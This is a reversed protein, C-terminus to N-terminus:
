LDPRFYTTKIKSLKLKLGSIKAHNGNSFLLPPPIEELIKIIEEVQELGKSSLDSKPTPLKTFNPAEILKRRFNQDKIIEFSENQLSDKNGLVNPIQRSISDALALSALEGGTLIFDGMSFVEHALLELVREDYGEYRACVFALHNYKALRISDKQSFKAGSPSVFIIRANKLSKIALALAVPELLMGAGGGILPSDVKKHKSISFDRLNLTSVEILNKNIANLLISAKFYSTILEPFLTIFSFRM